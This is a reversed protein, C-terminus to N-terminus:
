TLNQGSGTGCLGRHFGATFSVRHQNIEAHGRAQVCTLPSRGFCAADSATTVILWHVSDPPQHRLPLQKHMVCRAAPQEDHPPWIHHHRAHNALGRELQGPKSGAPTSLGLLSRSCDKAVMMLRAYGYWSVCSLSSMSSTRLTRCPPGMCSCRPPVSAWRPPIRTTADDEGGHMHTVTETPAECPM